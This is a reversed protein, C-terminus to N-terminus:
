EYSDYEAITVDREEIEALTLPTGDAHCLHDESCWYYFEHDTYHSEAQRLLGRGCELCCPVNMMHRGQKALVFTAAAAKTDFESVELGIFDSAYFKKM